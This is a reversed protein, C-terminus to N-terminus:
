QLTGQNKTYSEGWDLGSTQHLHLLLCILASTRLWVYVCVCQTVCLLMRFMVPLTTLTSPKTNAKPIRSSFVGRHPCPVLVKKNRHAQSFSHNCTDHWLGVRLCRQTTCICPKNPNATATMSRSQCACWSVVHVMVLSDVGSRPTSSTNRRWM